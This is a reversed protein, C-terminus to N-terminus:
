SAVVPESVGPWGMWKLRGLGRWDSDKCPSSTVEMEVACFPGASEGESPPCERLDMASTCSGPESVSEWAGGVVAAFEVVMRSLVLDEDVGAGSALRGGDAEPGGPSSVAWCGAGEGPAGEIVVM